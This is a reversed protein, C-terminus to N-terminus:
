DKIMQHHFSNVRTKEGFIEYLINDKGLIDINHTPLLSVNRDISFRHIWM